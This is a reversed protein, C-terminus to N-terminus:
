PRTRSKASYPMVIRYTASNYATGRLSTVRITLIQAGIKGSSLLPMPSALETGLADLKRQLLVWYTVGLIRMLDAIPSRMKEPTV